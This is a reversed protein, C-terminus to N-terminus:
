RWGRRLVRRANGGMIAEIDSPEIGHDRLMWRVRPLRSADGLDDPPDTFGDFDTGIAVASWDGTVERIRSMTKWVSKLGDRPNDRDLWYPMFIVGVVGGSGHIRQIEADYLNYDISNLARVGVHSAIVPIRDAVIDLVEKRATPTCHTLDPVMSVRVMEEVVQRGFPTLGRPAAVGTDLPCVPLRRLVASIGEAHGALNNPFLHALTLSAVGREALEAVRHLHGELVHGGEVTHVVARRGSELVEDLERNSRAVAFAPAREVQREMEDMMDLLCDWASLRVLKRGGRTLHALLWLLRCRFFAREPVHLSSWVVRVDGEELMVFDSLSSLPNFTRGSFHHRRLDRDFLYANLPPHAHIDTIGPGDRFDASM